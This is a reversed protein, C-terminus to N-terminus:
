TEQSFTQNWTKLRLGKKTVGGGKQFLGQEPHSFPKAVKFPLAGYNCERPYSILSKNKSLYIFLSFRYFILYKRLCTSKLFSYWHFSLNLIQKCLIQRRSVKASRGFTGLNGKLETAWNDRVRQSEMSQLMGPKGTWWWSGSGAWVWTWQTLSATWGDWGRIDDEGGAKLREWCWPWKEADPPWLVPAEADSRGIFIWSQNGKPSVPQIETCDLPSELIRWCWLEFADIRWREANKITCSECGYMFVPFVIAKVLRVKPPLTIDRSKLIHDLHAM